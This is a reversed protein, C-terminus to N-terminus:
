IYKYIRTKEIIIAFFPVTICMEFQELLKALSVGCHRQESTKMMLKCFFDSKELKEKASNFSFTTSVSFHRCIMFRDSLQM